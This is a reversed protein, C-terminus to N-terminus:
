HEQDHRGLLKDFAMSGYWWLYSVGIVILPAVLAVATLPLAKRLVPSIAYDTGSLYSTGCGFLISIFLFLVAIKVVGWVIRIYFPWFQTEFGMEKLDTETLSESDERSLPRDTIPM